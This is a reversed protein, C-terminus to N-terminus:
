LAVDEIIFPKYYVHVSHVFVLGYTIIIRTLIGNTSDM